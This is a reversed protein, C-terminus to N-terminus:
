LRAAIKRSTIQDDIAAIRTPLSPTLLEPTVSHAVLAARCRFDGATTRNRFNGGRVTLESSRYSRCTRYIGGGESHTGRAQLKSISCCRCRRIRLLFM